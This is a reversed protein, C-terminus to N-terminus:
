SGRVPPPQSSAAFRKRDSRKYDEGRERFFPLLFLTSMRTGREGEFGKLGMAATKREAASQLRFTRCLRDWLTFVGGFNSRQDALNTTHHIAHVNPTVVLWRLRRDVAAPFSVNGHVLHVQVITILESVFVAMPPPALLAVVAVQTSLTLAAELPHFRLGTTLDYDPDTHHVKHLRWLIPVRHLLWHQGYRVFDLLLITALWAAWAPMWPRNLLGYASGEVAMAAAVATLPLILAALWSTTFYLTLHGTWRRGTSVSPQRFPSLTEWAAVLVFIGFTLGFRWFGEDALVSGPDLLSEM